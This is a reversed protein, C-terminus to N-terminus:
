KCYRKAMLRIKTPSHEVAQLISYVAFLRGYKLVADSVDKCDEWEPFSASWGYDAARMVLDRGALDRDPIVVPEINLEEILQIQRESINNSGVSVGQTFLADFEGESVIIYESNLSINDLGFVYEAPAKRIYKRVKEPVTGAYRALYGVLKNEYTYPLIIRQNLGLYEYDTELWVALDSLQRKELYELKVPDAIPRFEFGPDFDPWDPRWKFEPERKVLQELDAQSLLELALRQIEAEDFGLQRM